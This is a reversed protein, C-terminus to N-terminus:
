AASRDAEVQDARLQRAPRAPRKMRSPHLMRETIRATLGRPLLRSANSTLSHLRGDIVYPRGRDLGRFACRVVEDTTRLRGGANMEFGLESFFDTDTHAPCLAIIRVGRGRLEAWLAITFHLVFAKAAGYVAMHPVAQFASTSSVNVLTGHGRAVMAPLFLHTMREVAVALVMVERHDHDPDLEHYNGHTGFGANNVLVDIELDLEGIRAAVADPGTEAALDVGVTHVTVPYKARLWEAAAALKDDPLAALVINAGRAAFAAAMALGIGSSAGTV